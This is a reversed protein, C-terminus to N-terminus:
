IEYYVVQCRKIDSPDSTKTKLRKPLISKMPKKLLAKDSKENNLSQIVADREGMREIMGGKMVLLKDVLSLISTRHSVVIITSGLEKMQRLAALLDREGQDDLNSNPEDLIILKPNDYIARALGVRQRQGALYFGLLQGIRTDYGQPLQLIM